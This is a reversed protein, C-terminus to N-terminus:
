LLTAPTERQLVPWGDVWDGNDHGTVPHNPRVSRERSVSAAQVYFFLEQAQLGALYFREKGRACFAGSTADHSRRGNNRRAPPVELVRTRKRRRVVQGIRAPKHILKRVQGTPSRLRM